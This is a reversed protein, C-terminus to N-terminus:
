RRRVRHKGRWKDWEITKQSHLTITPCRDEDGMVLTANLCDWRASPAIIGDFGLFAAADGIEQTRKYLLQSYRSVDVGLPELESVTEFRVSKSTAVELQYLTAQYKSPFVPQLSLHFEIEAIAGDPDLATYLVDMNGMDWRGGLSSPQLPDRGDRVVRWATGLYPVRVRADLADLLDPDRARRPNGAM